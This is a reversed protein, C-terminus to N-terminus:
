EENRKFISSIRFRSGTSTSRRPEEPTILVVNTQQEDVTATSQKAKLEGVVSGPPTNLLEMLEPDGGEEVETYVEVGVDGEGGEDDKM